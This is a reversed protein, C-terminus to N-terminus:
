SGRLLQDVVSRLEDLDQALQAVEDRLTSVPDVDDSGYYAQFITQGTGLVRDLAHANAVGPKTLGQEIKSMMSLGIGARQAVEAQTPREPSRDRLRAVMAGLSAYPREKPAAMVLTEM